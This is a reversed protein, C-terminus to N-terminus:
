RAIRERLADAEETRGAVDLARAREQDAAPVTLFDPYRPPPGSDPSSSLGLAVVLAILGLGTIAFM